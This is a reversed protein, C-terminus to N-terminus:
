RQGSMPPPTYHHQGQLTSSQAPHQQVLKSGVPHKPYNPPKARAARRVSAKRPVRNRIIFWTMCACWALMVDQVMYHPEALLAKTLQCFALVTLGILVLMMFLLFILLGFFLIAILIAAFWNVEGKGNENSM